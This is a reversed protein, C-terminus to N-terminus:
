FAKVQDLFKKLWGRNTVDQMAGANDVDVDLGFVKDSLISGDPSIDRTNCEGTLRIPQTEEGIRVKSHAVIILNGNPRIDVVKAMVRTEFVDKRNARGRNEMDNENTFAIAPTGREFDQDVWKHDHIRFWADLSSEIEWESEQQMRADSQYRLRHRVIVTILDNVVIQRPEPAAVAMLSREAVALNRPLAMDEVTGANVRLAGNADPRTTTAENQAQAAQSQLYLSNSQGYGLNATAILIVVIGM